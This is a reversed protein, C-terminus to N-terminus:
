DMNFLARLFVREKDLSHAVGKKLDPSDYYHDLSTPPLVAKFSFGFVDDASLTPCLKKLWALMLAGNTPHNLGCLNHLEHYIEAPIAFIHEPESKLVEGLVDLNPSEYYLADGVIINSIKRLTAPVWQSRVWINTKTGYDVHFKPNDPYDNFRIVVDYSDIKEGNGSGVEQPGNGVVAVRKGLLMKSLIGARHNKEIQDGVKLVLDIKLDRRGCDASLRAAAYSKWLNATGYKEHCLRMLRRALDEDGALRASTAFRPLMLPPIGEGESFFENMLAINEEHRGTRWLVLSYTGLIGLYQADGRACLSLLKRFVRFTEADPRIHIFANCLSIQEAIYQRKVAAGVGSNSYLHQQLMLLTEEDASFNACYSKGIEPYIEKQFSFRVLLDLKNEIAKFRREWDSHNERSSEVASLVPLHKKRFAQRRAKSPILAAILRVFVSYIHM